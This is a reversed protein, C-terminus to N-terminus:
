WRRTGENKFFNLANAIKALHKSGLWKALLALITVLLGFLAFIQETNALLESLDLQAFM